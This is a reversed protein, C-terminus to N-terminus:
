LKKGRIDLLLKRGVRLALCRTCDPFQSEHEVTGPKSGEEAQMLTHHEEDLLDILNELPRLIAPGIEVAEQGGDYHTVTIYKNKIGVHVDARLGCVECEIPSYAARKYTHNEMNKDEMNKTKM